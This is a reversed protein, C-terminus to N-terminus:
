YDLQKLTLLLGGDIFEKLKYLKIKNEIGRDTADSNSFFERVATIAYALVTATGSSGLEFGLTETDSLQSKMLSYIKDCYAGKIIIKEYKNNLALLLEDPNYVEFAPNSKELEILEDLVAGPTKGLTDALAIIVKNSYKEIKKNKHTSLLQQSIGTAKYVDYRKCNNRQLYLDLYNM